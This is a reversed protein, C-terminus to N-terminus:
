WYCSNEVKQASSPKEDESPRIWQANIINKFDPNLEWRRGYIGFLMQTSGGLHIAKKGMKKVHAALPLGYAGAGIIAIDFDILSIEKQMYNLADFWSKFNSEGGLSQVAAYTVLEFDPLVRNDNFLQERKLYQHEISRAFPHIVLVKKGKLYYSWPRASFYPELNRLKTLKANPCFRNAIVNEFPNFWIGLLDIEGIEDFYLESFENLSNDDVPFVGSYDKIIHKLNANYMRKSFNTKLVKLETSGLRSIMCPNSSELLEKIYDVTDAASLIPQNYDKPKVKYLKDRVWRYIVTKKILELIKENRM